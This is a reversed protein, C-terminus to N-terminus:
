YWSKWRTNAILYIAGAILIATIGPEPIYVTSGVSGSWNAAMLTADIEDVNGDDNFDGMERTADGMKLWNDALRIADSQDVRGDNNADGPITSVPVPNVYLPTGTLDLWGWDPVYVEHPDDATWAVLTKEGTALEFELLWDRSRIGIGDTRDQLFTTGRLSRTLEQMAYYAPKPNFEDDVVGFYHSSDNWKYWGSFVLGQSMNVLHQRVAYNAQLQLSGARFGESSDTSSSYGWETCALPMAPNYADVMSRINRYDGVVSEPTRGDVYADRYPHFSIADVHFDNSATALGRSLCTGLFYDIQSWGATATSLEPGFITCDPDAARMQPVATEVLDMYENAHRTRRSQITEGPYYSTPWYGDADPEQWIQYMVTDGYSKFHNVAAVAYDAYHQRWIPSTVDTSYVDPNQRFLAFEVRLGHAECDQVLADYNHDTRSPVTFDYIGASQEVEAWELDTQVIKFGANAIKEFIQDDYTWNHLKVALTQTTGVAPLEAANTCATWLLSATVVVVVYNRIIQM